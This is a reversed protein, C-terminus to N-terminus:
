RMLRRLGALVEGWPLAGCCASGADGDAVPVDQQQPPAVPSGPANPGGFGATAAILVIAAQILIIM